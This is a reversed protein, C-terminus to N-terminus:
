QAYYIMFKQYVKDLKEVIKKDTAIQEEIPRIGIKDLDGIMIKHDLIKSTWIFIKEAACSKMRLSQPTMSPDDEYIKLVGDARKQSVKSLDLAIMEDFVESTKYKKKFETYLKDQYVDTGFHAPSKVKPLKSSLMIYLACLVKIVSEPPNAFSLVERISMKFDKGKDNGLIYNDMEDKIGAMRLTLDNHMEITEEDFLETLSKEMNEIKAQAEIIQIKGGYSVEKNWLKSVLRIQLQNQTPLYKFVQSLVDKSAMINEM